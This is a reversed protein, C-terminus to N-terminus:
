GAAPEEAAARALGEVAEAVFRELRREILRGTDPIAPTFRSQWRIKTGRGELVTLTVEATHDVVPLGSLLESAFRYSPELVTV